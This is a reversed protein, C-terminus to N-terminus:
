EFRWKGEVYMPSHQQSISFGTGYFDGEVVNVIIAADAHDAEEGGVTARFSLKYSGSALPLRPIDFIFKGSKKSVKMLQNTYSTYHLFLNQEFMTRIAFSFDVDKQLAGGQSVYDFIFSYKGGTEMVNVIKGKNDRIQFNVIRIKGNGGRGNLYQLSKAEEKDFSSMYKSIIKDTSGFAKVKGQDLLLVKSCLTAVAPMSHSVFIVTRGEDKTISRMKKLSKRQFSVDGVALVEDILLVDADLNSAVSFALRVQMGSSYRKVPMDLFKEIEAFKVIEEFKSEIEKKGMGLIAGSLFINERGTLEPHFGTGVELMSAVKGEISANGSTPTVIRALIKLLTSKGSGNKGILGLVEGRKIDFSVDKLAWFSKEKNKKLKLSRIKNPIESIIDRLMHYPLTEGLHFEKSLHKVEIIKKLM